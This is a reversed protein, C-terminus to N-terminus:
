TSVRIVVSGLQMRPIGGKSERVLSDLIIQDHLIVGM